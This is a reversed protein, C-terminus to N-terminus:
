KLMLSLQLDLYDYPWYIGHYDWAVFWCYGTILCCYSLVFVLVFASVLLKM